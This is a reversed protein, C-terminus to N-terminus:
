ALAFLSVAYFTLMAAMALSAFRDLFGGHGPISQSWEAIGVKRKVFSNAMDGIASGFGIPLALLLNVEPLVFWQVLIVGVLAGILQGVVGEWSKKNNFAKPLPHKGLYNGSFFAGVDSMVSSMGIVMLLVTAREAQLTGFLYLHLWAFVFFGLYMNVVRREKPQSNRLAERIAAAAITGLLLLRWANSTYLFGVFVVFIPVWFLIKIFVKARVFRAVDFRYLPLTAALGLILLSTFLGVLQRLPIYESNM